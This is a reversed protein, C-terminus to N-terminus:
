RKWGKIVRRFIGFMLPWYAAIVGAVPAWLLDATVGAEQLTDFGQTLRVALSGFILALAVGICSDRLLLPWRRNSEDMAWLVAAGVMGGALLMSTEAFVSGYSLALAAGITSAKEVGTAM